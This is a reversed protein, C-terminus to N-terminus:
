KKDRDQEIRDLREHLKKVLQKLDHLQDEVGARHAEGGREKSQQQEAEHQRAHHQLIEKAHRNLGDAIDPMGAAHFHEAAEHMHQVAIRVRELREGGETKLSRQLEAIERKIRGAEEHQGAESHKKLAQHLEHMRRELKEAGPLPRKTAVEPDRKKDERVKERDGDKTREASGERPKDQDGKRVEERPKVVPKEGKAEKEDEAWCLSMAGVLSLGGISLVLWRKM